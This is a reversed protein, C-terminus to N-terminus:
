WGSGAVFVMFFVVLGALLVGYAVHLWGSTADGSVAERMPVAQMRRPVRLVAKRSGDPLLDDVIRPFRLTNQAM